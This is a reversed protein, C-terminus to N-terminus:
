CTATEKNKSSSDSLLMKSSEIIYPNYYPKFLESESMGLLVFTSLITLDNYKKNRILYKSFKYIFISLAILPVVGHIIMINMYINDIPYNLMGKTMHVNGVIGIGYSRFAKAALWLRGSLLENLWEM